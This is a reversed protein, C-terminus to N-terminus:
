TKSKAGGKRRAAIFTQLTGMHVSDLSLDGIFRDLQRLHLADDHISRKHLNESLYKTAAQRFTRGPRVGYVAAQRVEELKKTLYQEAKQSSAKALAKAFASEESSSTSTGSEKDSTSDLPEKEDWTSAGKMQGPRGNRAKYEEAWADLELRDFAIGQEGIPIETLQPRVEANFRNRDMGLYFPADRFRLLRPLLTPQTIARM